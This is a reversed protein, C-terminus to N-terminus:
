STPFSKQFLLPYPFILLDPNYSTSLFHCYRGPQSAFAKQFAEWARDFDLKTPAHVFSNWARICGAPTTSEIASAASVPVLFEDVIGKLQAALQEDDQIETPSDPSNNPTKWKRHINHVVNKGM